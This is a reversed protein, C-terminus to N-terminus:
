QSGNRRLLGWSLASIAEPLSRGRLSLDMEGCEGKTVRNVLHGKKLVIAKSYSPAINCQNLDM